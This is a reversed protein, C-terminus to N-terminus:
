NYFRRLIYKTLRPFAISYVHFLTNSIQVFIKLLLTFHMKTVDDNFLTNYNKMTCDYNVKRESTMYLDTFKFKKM